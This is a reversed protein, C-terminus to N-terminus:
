IFAKIHTHFYSMSKATDGHYLTVASRESCYIFRESCYIFKDYEFMSLNENQNNRRVM